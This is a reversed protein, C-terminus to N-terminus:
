SFLAFVQQHNPLLSPILLPFVAIFAGTAPTAISGIGKASVLSAPLDLGRHANCGRNAFYSPVPLANVLEFRM